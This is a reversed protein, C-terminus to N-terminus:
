QTKRRGQVSWDEVELREGVARWPRERGSRVRALRALVDAIRGVAVYHTDDTLTALVRLTVGALTDIGDDLARNVLAEIDALANEAEVWAPEAERNTRPRAM